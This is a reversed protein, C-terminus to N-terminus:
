KPSGSVWVVYDEEPQLKGKLLSDTIWKADLVWLGHVFAKVIEDTRKVLRLGQHQPKTCLETGTIHHTGREAIEDQNTLFEVAFGPTERALRCIAEQVPVSVNSCSISVVAGPIVGVKDQYRWTKVTKDAYSGLISKGDPSFSASCPYQDPDVDIIHQQGTSLMWLRLTQDKAASVVALGSPSFACSTIGHTHGELTRLLQGTTVCWLKMKSDNSGSLITAGDPAFSCSVIFDFHGKFTKQLEYTKANYLKLVFEGGYVSEMGVLFMTSNSSFSCCTGGWVEDFQVTHQIEGTNANWLKATSDYSVSLIRTNDHSVDVCMVSDMHGDLTRLLRGLEANWLKLTQDDSASVIAKGDPFFCCRNVAGSHGHLSFKEKGSIAHWLMVQSSDSCGVDDSHALIFNGCPSHQSHKHSSQWERQSGVKERALFSAILALMYHSVSLLGTRARKRGDAKAAQHPRAEMKRGAGLVVSFARRDTDQQLMVTLNEATLAAYAVETVKTFDLIEDIENMEDPGETLRTFGADNEQLGACLNAVTDELAEKGCRQLLNNLHAIENPHHDHFLNPVADVAFMVSQADVHDEERVSGARQKVLREQVFANRVIGEVHKLLYDFDHKKPENLYDRQFVSCLEVLVSRLTSKECLRLREKLDEM